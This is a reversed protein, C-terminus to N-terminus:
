LNGTRYNTSFYIDKILIISLVPIFVDSGVLRFNRFLAKAKEATVANGVIIEFVAEPATKCCFFGAEGPSFTFM